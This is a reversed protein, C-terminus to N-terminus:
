VRQRIRVGFGTGICLVFLWSNTSTGTPTGSIAFKNLTQENHNGIRVNRLDVDDGLEGKSKRHDVSDTQTRASRRAVPSQNGWLQEGVDQRNVSLSTRQVTGAQWSSLRLDKDHLHDM